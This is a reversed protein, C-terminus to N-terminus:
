AICWMSPSPYIRKIQGALSELWIICTERESFVLHKLDSHSLISIFISMSAFFIWVLHRIPLCVCLTSRDSMDKKTMKVAPSLRQTIWDWSVDRDIYKEQELSSTKRSVLSLSVADDTLYISHLTWLSQSCRFPPCNWQKRRLKESENCEADNTKINEREIARFPVLLVNRMFCHNRLVDELVREAVVQIEIWTKLTSSVALLHFDAYHMPLCTTIINIRIYFCSMGTSNIYGNKAKKMRLDQNGFRQEHEPLLSSQM